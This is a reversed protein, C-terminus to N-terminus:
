SSPPLPLLLVFLFAPLPGRKTRGMPLAVCHSKRPHEGKRKLLFPRACVRLCVSVCLCLCVSVWSVLAELLASPSPFSAAM